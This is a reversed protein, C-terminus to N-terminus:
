PQGFFNFHWFHIFVFWKGMLFLIILECFFNWGFRLKRLGGSNGRFNPESGKFPSFFITWIIPNMTNLDVPKLERNWHLFRNQFIHVSDRSIPWFTDFKAPKTQFALKPCKKSSIKPSPAYKEFGIKANFDHTWAPRNSYWSGWLRFLKKEAKYLPSM